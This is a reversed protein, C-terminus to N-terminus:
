ADEVKVTSSEVWDWEGEPNDETNRESELELLKVEANSKHKYLYSLYAGEHFFGVEVRYLKM